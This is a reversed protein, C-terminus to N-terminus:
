FVHSLSKAPSYESSTREQWIRSVFNGLSSSINANDIFYKTLSCTRLPMDKCGFIYSLHCCHQQTYLPISTCADHPLSLTLNNANFWLYQASIDSKSVKLAQPDWFIHRHVLKGFCWIINEWNFHKSTEPHSLSQVWFTLIERCNVWM